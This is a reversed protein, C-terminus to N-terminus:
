FSNNKNYYSCTNFTPHRNNYVNYEEEVPLALNQLCCLLLRHSPLSWKEYKDTLVLQIRSFM